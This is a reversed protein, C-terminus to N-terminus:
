VSKGNLTQLDLVERKTQTTRNSPLLRLAVSETAPQLQLVDDGHLHLPECLVGQEEVVDDFVCTARGEQSGDRLNVECWVVAGQAMTM